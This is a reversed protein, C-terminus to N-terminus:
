LPGRCTPTSRGLQSVTLPHCFFADGSNPLLLRNSRAAEPGAAEAEYSHQHCPKRWCLWGCPCGEGGYLRLVTFLCSCCMCTDAVVDLIVKRRWHCCCMWVFFHTTCITLYFSPCFLPQRLAFMEGRFAHMCGEFECCSCWRHVMIKLYKLALNSEKPLGVM